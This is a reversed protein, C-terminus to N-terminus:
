TGFAGDLKGTLGDMWGDMRGEEWEDTWGDVRAYLWWCINISHELMEPGRSTGQSEVPFSPSVNGAM